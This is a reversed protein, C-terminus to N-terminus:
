GVLNLLQRHLKVNHVRLYDVNKLILPYNVALTMADKTENDDNKIGLFSKRSVGLMIPLNLSYFEEIRNLLELNQEKNKGFGIGIDLIINDIGKSKVFDVKEKLKLYVEEVVDSYNVVSDAQGVLADTQFNGKLTVGGGDAKAIAPLMLLGVFVIGIISRLQKIM